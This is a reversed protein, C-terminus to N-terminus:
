LDMRRPLPQVQLQVWDGEARMDRRWMTGDDAIVTMWDDNETIAVAKRIAPVPVANRRGFREGAAFIAEVMEGDPGCECSPWECSAPSCTLRVAKRAAAERDQKM